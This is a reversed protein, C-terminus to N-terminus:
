MNNFTSGHGAFFVLLTYNIDPSKGVRKLMARFANTVDLHKPNELLALNEEKVVFNDLLFKKM